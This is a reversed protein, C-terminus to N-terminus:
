NVEVEVATTGNEHKVCSMVFTKLHFEDILHLTLAGYNENALSTWHDCTISFFRNQLFVKLKGSAEAKKSYLIETLGKADPVTLQKNAINIMEVFRVSEGINLPMSQEVVWQAYKRKFEQKLSTVQPIFSLISAQSASATSVSLQAKQVKKEMYELYEANHTRLHAVLPGPSANAGLSIAKDVGKAHCVLCVRFHNM